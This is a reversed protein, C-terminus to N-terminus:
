SKEDSCTESYSNHPFKGILCFDGFLCINFCAYILLYLNTPLCHEWSLYVAESLTSRDGQEVSDSVESLTNSTPVGDRLSGYIELVLYSHYKTSCM